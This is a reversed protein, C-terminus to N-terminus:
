LFRNLAYRLILKSGINHEESVKLLNRILMPMFKLSLQLIFEQKMNAEQNGRSDGTKSNKQTM